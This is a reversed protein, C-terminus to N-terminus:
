GSFYASFDTHQGQRIIESANLKEKINYGNQTFETLDKGLSLPWEIMDVAYNRSLALRRLGEAAERGPVDMDGIIIIGKIRSPLLDLLSSLSGAGNTITGTPYGLQCGLAADFEGEVAIIWDRLDDAIRWAPYLTIENLGKLGFYKPAKKAPVLEQKKEDYESWSHQYFPDSRYRFTKLRYHEDFIPLVFSAGTHGYRFMRITRDPYMRTTHFWELRHAESGWLISEYVGLMASSPPSAVVEKISRIGKKEAETLYYKKAVKIADLHSPLHLIWALAEMRKNVRFECGFCHIHDSFIALSEADDAHNPCKKMIPADGFVLAPSVAKRIDVDRITVDHRPM